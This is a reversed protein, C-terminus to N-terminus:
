VSFFRAAFTDFNDICESKRMGYSTSKQLYGWYAIIYLASGGALVPGPTLIM